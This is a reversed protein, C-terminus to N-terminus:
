AEDCEKLWRNLAYKASFARNSSPVNQLRSLTSQVLEICELPKLRKLTALSSWLLDVLASYHADDVENDFGYSDITERFELMSEALTYPNEERLINSSAYSKEALWGKEDIYFANEEFCRVTSALMSSISDYRLTTEGERGVDVIHAENKYSRGMAIAFYTSDEEIYPLLPLGKYTPYEEEWIDWKKYEAVCQISMFQCIDVNEVPQMFYATHGNRWRYLEYFDDPLEHNLPALTEDIEKYSIGPMFGQSFDLFNKKKLSKILRRGLDSIDSM